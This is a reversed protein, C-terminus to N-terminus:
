KKRCIKDLFLIIENHRDIKQIRGRLSLGLGVLELTEYLAGITEKHVNLTRSAELNGSDETMSLGHNYASGTINHKALWSSSPSSKGLSATVSLLNILISGHPNFSLNNRM